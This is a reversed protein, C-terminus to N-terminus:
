TWNRIKGFTIGIDTGEVSYGYKCDNLIAVGYNNEAIQVYKHWSEFRARDWSTNKHTARKVYGFQIDYVAENSHLNM